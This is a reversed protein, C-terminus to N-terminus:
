AYPLCCSRVASPAYPPFAARIRGLVADRSAEIWKRLRGAIFVHRVNSTDMMTVVSGPANNLPMTNIRNADLVIVDAEKGPTLSGVKHDVHAARAGAITAMQLIQRCGVLQPLDDEGAIYRENLLARQLTFTARMVTFMDAAMTTEVDTSLSPLIGHALAQQIPPMGHRMAMEIATAISVHGGSDAIKAFTEDPFQTCHIYEQDPGLLGAAHVAEIAESGAGGLAHSILPADFDRALLLNDVGVSGGLALTVLQDDSAFYQSRLRGLGTTSDGIKGPYEYGPADGRGASYAYLTRRGSDRLGAIMADTHEPTHSSQSTDIGTTVGAAIQSLSAVLESIYNDEPAYPSAGLDFLANKGQTWLGQVVSFYTKEPWDGRLIGDALISRQITEYQHHHTDIFGPMVIMGAADIVDADAQISPGVAAIRAGDLLVDAQEFDGLDPDMTLVVGGRLLVPRGDGGPQPGGAQQAQAARTLGAALAGAGLGAGATLLDRRSAGEVPSAAPGSHVHLDGM